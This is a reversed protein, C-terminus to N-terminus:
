STKQNLMPDAYNMLISIDIIKNKYYNIEIKKMIYKENIQYNIKTKM